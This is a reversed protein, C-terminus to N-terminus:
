FAGEIAVGFAGPGVTPTVRPREDLERTSPATLYVIVGAALVATGGIFFGTSLDAKLRAAEADGRGEPTCFGDSRCGKDQATNWQARRTRTAARVRTVISTRKWARTSFMM